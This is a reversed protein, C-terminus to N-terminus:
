GDPTTQSRGAAALTREYAREMGAVDKATAWGRGEDVARRTEVVFRSIAAAEFLPTLPFAGAELRYGREWARALLRRVVQLLPNLPSPPLPAVLLAAKTMALDLRPDTVAANTFDLIASLKGHDVLVNIPHYDLHCFARGSLERIVRANLDEDPIIGRLDEARLERIGSPEAKHLRAQLRGFERGLQELQWPRSRLADLMPVGPMWELIFCPVGNYDSLDEVAPVPLGGTRAAEMAAAENAATRARAVRDRGEYARYVRLAHARGDSTAFRWLHNDWGGAVPTIPGEAQWGLASLVAAPDPADV